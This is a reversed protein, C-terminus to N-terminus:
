TQRRLGCRLRKQCVRELIVHEEFQKSSRSIEICVCRAVGKHFWGYNSRPKLEQKKSM